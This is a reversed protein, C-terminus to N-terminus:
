LVLLESAVGLAPMFVDWSPAVVCARGPVGQPEAGARM